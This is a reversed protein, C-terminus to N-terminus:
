TRTSDFLYAVDGISQLIHDPAYDYREVDSRSTAGTLVLASDMGANRAFLIDTEMRDGVVLCCEATLDLIELALRGMDPSPKGFVRDPPRGAVATVAAAISGAGPLFGGVVPFTPDLNTAWFLAGHQLAIHARALKDYTFGRDMATVIIDTKLPDSELVAGAQEVGEMLRPEGIVMVRSGRHERRLTYILASASNVVQEEGVDLGLETIKEALDKALSGANNSIFLWRVGRSALDDYAAKAGDILMRGRNVTGDLDALIAKYHPIKDM